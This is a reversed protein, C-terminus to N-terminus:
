GKQLKSRMPAAQDHQSILGSWLDSVQLAISSNYPGNYLFCNPKKIEFCFIRLILHIQCIPISFKITMITMTIVKWQDKRLGMIWFSSRKFTGRQRTLLSLDRHGWTTHPLQIRYSCLLFGMVRLKTLFPYKDWGKFLHFTTLARLTFKVNEQPSYCEQYKILFFSTFNLTTSCSVNWYHTSWLVKTILVCM